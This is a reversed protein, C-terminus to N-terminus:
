QINEEEATPEMLVYRTIGTITMEDLVDVVNKYSSQMTPKILIVTETPDKYQLEVAHRMEKIVSRLQNDYNIRSATAINDGKYYVLKNNDVLILSLTKSAPTKIRISKEVDKPMRIKMSTAQTMTTTFIFFTILLFGLDVMPTLDVRTSLRKRKSGPIIEAM